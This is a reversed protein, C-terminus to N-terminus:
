PKITVNRYGPLVMGAFYQPFNDKTMSLAAFYRWAAPYLGERFKCQTSHFQETNVDKIFCVENCAVGSAILSLLINQDSESGAVAQAAAQRWQTHL